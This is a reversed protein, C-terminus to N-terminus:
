AFSGAAIEELQSRLQDALSLGAAERLLADILSALARGLEDPSLSTVFTDAFADLVAQPLRDFGKGHQHPLGRNLCALTLGHDRVESIFHQAQWVRGREIDRRVEIAYLVAFAFVESPAPVIPEEVKRDGFLLRFRPSRQTFQSAPWVSVDAQLCDPFLFIRYVAPEMPWDHLVTADLERGLWTSWDRLVDAPDVDDRVGLALDIDSWRDAADDALSGVLAASVVRDDHTARDVLLDRVRARDAVTFM